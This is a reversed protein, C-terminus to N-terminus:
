RLASRLGKERWEDALRTKGIGPEGALLFAPRPRISRGVFCCSAGRAGAKSWCVNYRNEVSRDRKTRTSFKFIPPIPIGIM